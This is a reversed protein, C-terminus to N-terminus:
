DGKGVVPLLGSSCVGAQQHEVGLQGGVGHQLFEGAAPDAPEGQALAAVFFEGPQGGQRGRRPFWGAQVAGAAVAVGVQVLVLDFEFLDAGGDALDGDGVDATLLGSRHDVRPPRPSPRVREDVPKTGQIQGTPELRSWWLCALRVFTVQYSGTVWVWRLATRGAPARAM